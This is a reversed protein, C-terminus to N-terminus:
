KGKRLISIKNNIKKNNEEKKLKLHKNDFM